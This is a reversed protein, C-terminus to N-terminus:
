TCLPICPFQFYFLTCLALAHPILFFFGIKEMKKEKVMGEVGVLEHESCAEIATSQKPM